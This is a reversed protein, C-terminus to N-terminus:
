MHSVARKRRPDGNECRPLLNFFAPGDLARARALVKVPTRPRTGEHEGLGSGVSGNPSCGLTSSSGVAGLRVAGQVRVLLGCRQQSPRRDLFAFLYQRSTPNTRTKTQRDPQATTSFLESKPSVSGCSKNSFMSLPSYSNSVRQAHTRVIFNHASRHNECSQLCM